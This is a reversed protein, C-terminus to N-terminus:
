TRAMASASPRVTGALLYEGDMSRCGIYRASTVALSEANRSVHLAYRLEPAWSAGPPWATALGARRQRPAGTAALVRPRRRAASRSAQVNATLHAPHGAPGRDRSRYSGACRGPQDEDGCRDARGPSGPLVRARTGRAAAAPPRSHGLGGPVTRSPRASPVVAVHERTGPEAVAPHPLVPRSRSVVFQLLFSLAKDYDRLRSWSGHMAVFSDQAIDEAARVDGALLAAIRVLSRYHTGYMAALARDADPEAGTVAAQAASAPRDAPGDAPHDALHRPTLGAPEPECAPM